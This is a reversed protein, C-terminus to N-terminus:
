WVVIAGVVLASNVFIIINRVASVIIITNRITRLNENLYELEWNLM